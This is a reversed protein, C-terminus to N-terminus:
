SYKNLKNDVQNVNLKTILETKNELNKWTFINLIYNIILFVNSHIKSDNTIKFYVKM